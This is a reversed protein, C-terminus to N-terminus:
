ETKITEVPNITAAQWNQFTITLITALSIGLFAIAFIWWYLPSRYAFNQQWNKVVFYGLPVALIFCTTLIRLYTKNFLLIIELTTSGLVKRLGIEKMKYQSEFLVLGFVGVISIFIALLSFLTILRFMNTEKEYLQQLVHDFFRIHFPYDPDLQALTHQVHKMAAKLDTGAKVRIYAIEPQVGRSEAGWLCLVGDEIREMRFIREAEPIQKNFSSDYEVQIMILLFAAFAVTLGLVNLLTAMKFRCLISVLNHLLTKLM